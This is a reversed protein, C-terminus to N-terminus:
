KEGLPFEFIRPCGTLRQIIVEMRPLGHKEAYVKITRGDVVQSDDRWHASLADLVAKRINDSDPRKPAWVMGEPDRKRMLRKPRRLVALIDVRLPGDLPHSPMEMAALHRIAAEFNRTKTPTHVMARPKGNQYAVRARPRGKALPEVPLRLRIEGLRPVGFTDPDNQM